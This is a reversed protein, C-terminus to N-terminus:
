RDSKRQQAALWKLGKRIKARQAANLEQGDISSRTRKAGLATDDRPGGVAPPAVLLVGCVGAVALSSRRM